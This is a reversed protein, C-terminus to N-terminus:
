RALPQMARYEKLTVANAAKEVGSSVLGKPVHPMLRMAQNNIWLLARSTPLLFHHASRAFKQARSVAEGMASQYRAFAAAFDDDAIALEGALVYAGEPTSRALASRIM